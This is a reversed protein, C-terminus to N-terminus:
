YTLPGYIGHAHMREELHMAEVVDRRSGFPYDLVQRNAGAAAATALIKESARWGFVKGVNAFGGVGNFAMICNIASGAQDYDAPVREDSGLNGLMKYRTGGSELFAIKRLARQYLEPSIEYPGYNRFHKGSEFRLTEDLTYNHGPVVKLLPMQFGDRFYGPQPLWSITSERTVKGNEIAVFTGFSHSAMSLRLFEASDPLPDINGGEQTGFMVWFYHVGDAASATASFVFAAVLCCFTFIRRSTPM